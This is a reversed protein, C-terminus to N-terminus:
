FCPDKISPNSEKKGGFCDRIEGTKVVHQKTSIPAARLDLRGVVLTTTRPSLELTPEREQGCTGEGKGHQWRVGTEGSDM